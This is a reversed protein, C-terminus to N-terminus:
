PQTEELSDVLIVDLTRPGHVGEVRVLEIDSTASPGSVLTLPGAGAAVLDAMATVAEPVSAVVQDAEVVCLHYDPLLTLVRRGEAAGGALILTGTEAVALACGSLVAEAEALTDTPIGPAQDHIWRVPREEAQALWSDPIGHPVIAEGVGRAALREAVVRPLEAPSCRTVNANYDKLREVLRSLLQKPDAPPPQFPKEPIAGAPVAAAPKGTRGAKVTRSRTAWWERFSEEALAPMDRGETWGSGYGPLRRVWGGERRPWPLRRATKLVRLYRAPSHLVWGLLKMLVKEQLPPRPRPPKPSTDGPTPAEGGPQDAGVAPGGEVARSRLHLLVSPIDIEVPCVDKCAGCLTSAFPLSDHVGPGLLQPTLISGIPGPYTAHYAHGGVRAYVPCINLCASCRICHLAQRGVPDSRVRRRGNDLLVLHFTDPGDGAHVGTWLTTYPNMREGTASRPLLQLFVSLDMFEPLVKEVGMVTILTKPLTLCMRGNGESEVVGVTGTEAVAFNAGSIAVEASVFEERLHLRAAEALEGPDDTLDPRGLHERFLDRIQTRNKHIAPVLFHSSPEGALQIILEALDTEVADIGREALSENLGIEDTTISKVKVVSSSGTEVVLDGIISNAEQADAARHVLGGASVVSEELQDLYGELNELARTKIQRAAARLAEWDPVEGV